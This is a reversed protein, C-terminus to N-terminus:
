GAQLFRLDGFSVYAATLRGTAYAGTDVAIRGAEAKAEEVITHGHAVWIGDERPTTMFDKHGWKLTQEAQLAMPLKPDAAAHVVALNGTQWQTPLTDLWRLIEPGIAARLKMATVEFVTPDSNTPIGDIGYSGLTNLGGYRLWRAGKEAPDQLFGLMMDEHNGRLCTINANDREAFLADLVDKTQDGRDVYDGVYVQHAKPDEEAMQSQLDRLQRACGHLDGIVFVPADPTLPASFNAQPEPRSFIRRFLPM